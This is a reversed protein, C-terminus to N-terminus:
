RFIQGAKFQFAHWRRKQVDTRRRASPCWPALPALGPSVFMRHERSIRGALFAENPAKIATWILSFTLTKGSGSHLFTVSTGRISPDSKYLPISSYSFSWGPCEPNLFAPKSDSVLLTSHSLLLRRITNSIHKLILDDQLQQVAWTHTLSLSLSHTLALM